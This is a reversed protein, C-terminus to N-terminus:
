YEVRVGLQIERAGAAATPKGFQSSRLNGEHGIWNRRNPVHFVEALIELRVRQLRFARSIRVDSQWFPDGRSSNRGVGTPRDTTPFSDGNDDNGTTVNYPLATRATLVGAVRLAFPLDVTFNAALRQRSDNVGPGRDAAYDRQDQPM